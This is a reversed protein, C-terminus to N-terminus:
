SSFADITRWCFATYIRHACVVCECLYKLQSYIFDYYLWCVASFQIIAIIMFVSVFLFVCVASYFCCFIRVYVLFFSASRHFDVMQLSNPTLFCSLCVCVAITANTFLKTLSRLHNPSPALIFFFFCHCIFGFIVHNAHFMVISIHCFYTGTM